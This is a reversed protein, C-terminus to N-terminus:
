TASERSPSSRPLRDNTDTKDSLPLCITLTTGRGPESAATIRGGLSEIIMFSVSLGLGTGKGPDKTTFFPDFIADLHEASIGPGNDTVKITIAEPPSAAGTIGPAAETEIVLKGNGQHDASSIADAANIILNLFVQRLQNPDALVADDPAKFSQEIAIDAMLPQFRIVDAIGDLIEHVSVRGVGQNSPRSLDLLQRIITNIRSIEDETRMLYERREDDGIDTQKLLELYGMVIGIPNGIEHAIGASLRGVSALKEAQIVEKQAQQLDVNAKELSQVTSRLTEKDESIRALMRNLSKSLQHLENDEKRVAFILGDDERYEDARKVLRQVPELYIKSIRYVGILTFILTNVLVYLFFLKQSRRLQAYMNELPLVVGAGGVIMGNKFVPVAICLYRSQMWFLGWTTGIFRTAPLGSGIAETAALAASESLHREQGALLIPRGGRDFVAAVAVESLRVLADIRKSDMPDPPDLSPNASRTLMPEFAYLVLNGRTIEARLLDQQLTMMMV